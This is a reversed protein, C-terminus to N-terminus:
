RGRLAVTVDFEARDVLSLNLVDYVFGPERSLLDLYAISPMPWEDPVLRVVNGSADLGRLPHLRAGLDGIREPYCGHEGEFAIAAKELAQASELAERLAERAAGRTPAGRGADGTVAGPWAKRVELAYDSPRDLRLDCAPTFALDEMEERWALGFFRTVVRSAPVTGAIGTAGKRYSLHADRGSPRGAFEVLLAPKGEETRTRQRRLSGYTQGPELHIPGDTLWACPWTACEAADQDVVILCLSTYEPASVRSITLPCWLRDTEFRIAVPALDRVIPKAEAASDAIRLAVFAWGKRTYTELVDRAQDPVGYGNERLWALLAGPQAADLVAAEYDGVELRAHVRVESGPLDVAAMGGWDGGRGAAGGLQVTPQTAAFLDDVFEPNATLVEGAVSPTPVLWAFARSPGQYTTQLILVEETGERILVAEQASASANPALDVAEAARFLFGGDASVPGVAVLVLGWWKM